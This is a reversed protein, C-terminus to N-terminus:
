LTNWIYLLTIWNYIYIHIYIYEKESEKEKYIIVFYQTCSGISYLPETWYLWETTDSEKCGWSSGCALGGQGDGDGPAQECEHGDLRHHWGVMEDETAAKEKQGWALLLIYMILSRWTFNQYGLLHMHCIPYCISILLKIPTHIITVLPM